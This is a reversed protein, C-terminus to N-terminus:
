INKSSLINLIVEAFFNRIGDIMILPIKDISNEVIRTIEDFGDTLKSLLTTTKNEFNSSIEQEYKAM